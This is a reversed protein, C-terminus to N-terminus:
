RTETEMFRIAKAIVQACQPVVANGIAKLRDVRAPIGHAVRGVDPETAWWQERSTGGSDCTLVEEETRPDPEQKRETRCREMRLEKTDAVNTEEKSSKSQQQRWRARKDKSHAVIFVRERKHPAGVSAAELLVPQLAEYNLRKLDALVIGLGGSTVLGPVNEIVVYKPGKGARVMEKLIRAYEHWLGSRNGEKIGARRGAHSVDQCPFGLTHVDTEPLDAGDLETIDNFIQVNPWNKALVKRCYENNECFYVVEFGEWEFGLEIGGAGSFFSGTRV